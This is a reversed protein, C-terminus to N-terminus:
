YTTAQHRARPVRPMHACDQAMAVASSSRRRPTAPFSPRCRVQLCGEHFWHSCGCVRLCPDDPQYDDLCIPCREETAGPRTWERYTGRPLSEIIDDPTGRPKADGLLSSLSLLGEYSVDFDEDRQLTLRTLM